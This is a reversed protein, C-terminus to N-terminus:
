ASPDLIRSSEDSDVLDGAQFLDPRLVDRLGGTVNEVGDHDGGFGGFGGSEQAVM